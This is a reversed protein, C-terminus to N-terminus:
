RPSTPRTSRPSPTTTATAADVAGALSGVGNNFITRLGVVGHYTSTGDGSFGATDESNAFAYAMEGVLIDGISVAADEDLESSMLTLV